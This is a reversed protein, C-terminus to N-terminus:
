CEPWKDRIADIMSGYISRPGHCVITRTQNSVPSQHFAVGYIKKDVVSRHGKDDITAYVRWLASGSMGEYSNPSSSGQGYTVEFDLLDLGDIKQEKVVMGVGFLANIGKIRAGSEQEPLDKTWEAIVGSLSDFYQPAPYDEVLVAERRKELNFFVNGRAELTGVDGQSLRLFGLDPGEPGFPSTGIALKEAQTMDIMQRQATLPQKKPFRVLGVKGKDPLYELVHAATLIGHISGVSILSGSGAPAADQVGDHTSVLVFGVTFDAIYDSVKELEPEIDHREM